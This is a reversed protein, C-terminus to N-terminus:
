SARRIVANCLLFCLRNMNSESNARVSFVESLVFAQLFAAICSVLKDDLLPGWDIKQTLELDQVQDYVDRYKACNKAWRDHLNSM